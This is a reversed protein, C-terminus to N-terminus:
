NGIKGTKLKTFFLICLNQLKRLQNLEPNRISDVQQEQTIATSFLILELETNNPKRKLM